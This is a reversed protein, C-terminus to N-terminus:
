SVFETYDSHALQFFFHIKQVQLQFQFSQVSFTALLILIKKNIGECDVQNLSAVSPLWPPPKPHVCNPQLQLFPLSTASILVSTVSSSRVVKVRCLCGCMGGAMGAPSSGRACGEVACARGRARGASSHQAGPPGYNGRCGAPLRAVRPAARRRTM